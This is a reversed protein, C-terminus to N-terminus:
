PHRLLAALAVLGGIVQAMVSLRAVEDVHNSPGGQAIQVVAGPRPVPIDDPWFRRVRVAEVRGDPQTVFSHGLDAGDTLGGAARVYYNADQGAVWPVGRPANVAGRVSVLGTFRPLDISDGDELLLNDRYSPDRLVRALDVGLRGLGGTRRVFAIGDRDAFATLGGARAVLDSLRDNKSLLTYTGPARVEGTIVVQGPPAWGPQPLVLVNDFPALPVDAAPRALGTLYSSDLPVRQATALRGGSTAAAVHAIEAESPAARQDLGGALLILDRLTMGAHYAYRGPQRVPGAIGVDQPSRLDSTSFVRIEDDTALPLNLEGGAASDGLSARLDARTSDAPRLRSVLIRARYADPKFGGALRIADAVRM